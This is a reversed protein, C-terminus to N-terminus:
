ITSRLLHGERLQLRRKSYRLFATIDYVSPKLIGAAGDELWPQQEGSCVYGNHVPVLVASM